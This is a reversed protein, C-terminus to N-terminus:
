GLQGGETPTKKNGLPEAAPSALFAETWAATRIACRAFWRQVTVQTLGLAAAVAAQSGLQNYLDILILRIDRGAHAREIARMRATKSLRALPPAANTGASTPM